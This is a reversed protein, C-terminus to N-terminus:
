GKQDVFKGSVFYDARNTCIGDIGRRSIRRFESEDDVTWSMLSYKKELRAFLKEDLLNVDPKIGSVRALFRGEGRRLYYPVDSTDSYILYLPIHPALRQFRKLPIPNFSSVIVRAELNFDCIMELVKKELGRNKMYDAKLEVDYYVKSGLLTFVEELLPIKEGAFEESFFSGNDLSRIQALDHDVINGDFGTTRKMNNDHYVVLEGSACIQVDLEVGPVNYELAKRFSSLNNEPALLPCGRHGFLLPAREGKIVTSERM